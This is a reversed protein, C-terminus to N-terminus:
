NGKTSYMIKVSATAATFSDRTYTLVTEHHLVSFMVIAIADENEASRDGTETALQSGNAEREHSAVGADVILTNEVVMLDLQVFNGAKM